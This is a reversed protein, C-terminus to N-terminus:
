YWGKVNWAAVAGCPTGYRGTIYSVGWIIQTQPNTQWDAGASAMKSGPLSQPIGYAGSSSNTAQFNWGSEHNWLTVLCQFESEGMGKGALYTRAFAQAAAPSTGVMPAAAVPAASNAPAPTVTTAPSGAQTQAQGQSTAKTQTKTAAAASTTATASDATLTAAADNAPAADTKPEEKKVVPEEKKPAPTTTVITRPFTLKGTATIQGADLITKIAGDAVNTTLHSNTEVVPVMNASANTETAAQAPASAVMKFAIMSTSVFATLLIAIICRYKHLFPLTYTM